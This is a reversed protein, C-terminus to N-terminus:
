LPERKLNVNIIEFCNRSIKFFLNAPLDQFVGQYKAHYAYTGVGFSFHLLIPQFSKKVNIVRALYNVLSSHRYFM